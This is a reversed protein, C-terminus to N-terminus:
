CYKEIADRYKQRMCVYSETGDKFTITYYFYTHYGKPGMKQKETHYKYSKVNEKTLMLVKSGDKNLKICAKDGFMKLAAGAFEGMKVKSGHNKSTYTKFVEKAINLAVAVVKPNIPPLPM